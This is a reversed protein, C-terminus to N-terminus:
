WTGRIVHFSGSEAVEELGLPVEIGAATVAIYTGNGWGTAVPSVMAEFQLEMLSDTFPVSYNGYSGKREVYGAPLQPLNETLIMRLKSAGKIYTSPTLKATGDAAVSEGLFINGNHDQVFLALVESGLQNTVSFQEPTAEFLLEKKTPCATIALYQTPTRSGLWGRTLRQQQKSWELSRQQNIRQRGFSSSGSRSPLIPYVVTDVPMQLGDSPAIGAYYSLRAWSAAEGARQDLMTMSRVRVRVGIGDALFGYAFLMATAAFAALPVTILLLPLQNRRKLLWYNVPGIGIVFLSILLQFEFVPAAGVDPILLRNFNPNGTAPDNGHRTDWALNQTISSREFATVFDSPEDWQKEVSNQVAVVTGMGYSRAVFWRRADSAIEPDGSDEIEVTSLPEETEQMTFKVLDNLRLRGEQKLRPFHWNGLPSNATGQSDNRNTGLMEELQSLESFGQGVGMVWLNGGARVWRLLEKMKEPSSDQALELSEMTTAVVDLSSYENWKDPLNHLGLLHEDMSNGTAARFLEFPNVKSANLLLLGASKGSSGGSNFPIVEACVSEDKVGDVWVDWGFTNWDVLQPVTLTATVSSAGQPLEFDSEVTIARHDNRWNGAHFSFTIQTDATAPKAMTATIKVPRYGRKGTWVSDVSIQLGSQKSYVPGKRSLPLVVVDGNSALTHAALTCVLLVALACRCIGSAIPHKLKSSIRQSPLLM